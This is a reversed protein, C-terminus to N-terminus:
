YKPRIQISQASVTGDTNASGTATIQSGIEVDEISGTSAKMVTTSSSLLIIKSGGDMLKVTVSKDDKSLVEGGILGGNQGRMGGVRAGVSGATGGFQQARAQRQEPTMNAFSVAGARGGITKSQAYKVGGFFAGAGVIVIAIIIGPLTKKM